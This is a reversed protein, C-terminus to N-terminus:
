RSTGVDFLDLGYQDGQGPKAEATGVPYGTEDKDYDPFASSPQGSIFVRKRTDSLSTGVYAPTDLYEM